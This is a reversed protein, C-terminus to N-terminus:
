VFKIKAQTKIEWKGDPRQEVIGDKTNTIQKAKSSYTKEDDFVDKLVADFNAMARGIDGCFRYNAKTGNLNFLEYYANEKISEKFLIMGEREKLFIRDSDLPIVVEERSLEKKQPEPLTNEKLHNNLETQIQGVKRDLSQLKEEFMTVGNTSSKIKNTIRISGLVYQIVSERNIKEKEIIDKELIKIRSKFDRNRKFLLLYLYIIFIAELGIAIPLILQPKDDLDTPDKEFLKKIDGKEIHLRKTKSDKYIVIQEVKASDSKQAISLTNCLFVVSIMFIIKKM